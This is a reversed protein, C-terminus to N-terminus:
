QTVFVKQSILSSNIFMTLDVLSIENISMMLLNESRRKINRIKLSIVSLLIWDSYFKLEDVLLTKFAPVKFDVQLHINDHNVKKRKKLPENVM